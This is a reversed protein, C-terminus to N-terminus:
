VREMHTSPWQQGVGFPGEISVWVYERGDPAPHRHVPADAPLTAGDVVYTSFKATTESVFCRVKDGQKLQRAQETNM